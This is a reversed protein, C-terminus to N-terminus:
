ESAQGLEISYTLVENERQVTVDIEEGVGNDRVAVILDVPATIRQDGVKIIIDGDRVGAEYAPGGIDAESVKAGPGAYLNDLKVGIIPTTSKGTEIIETAVRRATDSPIAFGLGISGAEEASADNTAIASNVGIVFGSGDVLPGGSNGPNIAADTQIANLFSPKEGNIDGGTTVPRNLASVIGSTVTGQLGLPSGLAVVLEGVQVNSSDGWQVTPYDTGKVKLVAIDYDESIGVLEAPATDGNAFAVEIEGGNKGIDAVHANTIIYGDSQIIFGSGSGEATGDQSTVAIKVVTPSVASAIGAIGDANAVVIPRTPVSTNQMMSNEGSSSSVSGSVLGALYGFFGGTASSVIILVIAAVVLGNRWSSPFTVAPSRPPASSASSAVPPPFTETVPASSVESPEGPNGDAVKHPSEGNLIDNQESDTQSLLVPESRNDEVPVQEPPAESPEGSSSGTNEVPFSNKEDQPSSLPPNTSPSNSPVPFEGNLNEDTM